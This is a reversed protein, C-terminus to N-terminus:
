SLLLSFKKLKELTLTAQQRLKTESIIFATEEGSLCDPSYADVDSFLQDLIPFIESSMGSSESKFATLYQDEFEQISIENEIFSKILKQYDELKM